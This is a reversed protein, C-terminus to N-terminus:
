MFDQPTIHLNDSAKHLSHTRNIEALFRIQNTHM